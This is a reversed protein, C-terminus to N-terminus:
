IPRMRLGHISSLNSDLNSDLNSSLNSSLNSGLNSDYNSGISSDNPFAFSGSIQGVRRYIYM